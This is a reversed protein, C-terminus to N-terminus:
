DPVMDSYRGTAAIVDIAMEMWARTVAPVIVLNRELFVSKESLEMEIDQAIRTPDYFTVVYRQEGFIAVAGRFWGKAEVEWAHANFDDPFQVHAAVSM